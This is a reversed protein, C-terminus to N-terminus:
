PVLLPHTELVTIAPIVNLSSTCGLAGSIHARVHPQATCPRHAEGALRLKGQHSALEGLPGRAIPTRGGGWPEGEHRAESSAGQFARAAASVPDRAPSCRYEGQDEASFGRIVLTQRGSQCLVQFRGGPQIRETGKLWVVEGAGPVECELRLEQGPAM